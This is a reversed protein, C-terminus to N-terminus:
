WGLYLMSIWCVTAMAYPLDDLPELNYKVGWVMWTEPNRNIVRLGTFIREHDHNKRIEWLIGNTVSDYYNCEPKWEIVDIYGAWCISANYDPYETSSEIDSIREYVMKVTESWGEYKYLGYLAYSYCDALISDGERHWSGDGEPPPSFYMYFGELGEKLFNAADRMMGTYVTMNEPDFTTLLNLGYLCYLCEIDMEVWGFINGVAARAFGGYYSDTLNLEYPKHQMNYLFFAAKIASSLYRRNGTLMYAHLLAPIARGADISYYYISFETSKFGGYVLSEMDKCQQTLLWNSLEIIKKYIDDKVLRFQPDHYAQYLFQISFSAAFASRGWSYDPTSNEFVYIYPSYNMIFEYYIDPIQFWFRGNGECEVNFLKTMNEGDSFIATVSVPYFIGPIYNAKLGLNYGNELTLTRYCGPDLPNEVSIERANFPKEGGLQILVNVIPKSGVNKVEITLIARGDPVKWLSVDMVNFMSYSGLRSLLGSFQLTLIFGLFSLTAALILVACIVSLGRRCAIAM